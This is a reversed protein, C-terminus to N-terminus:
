ENNCIWEAIDKFVPGLMGGATVPIHRKNMSLVISYKPNDAPFYGCANMHYEEVDVQAIGVSIAVITKPTAARKGLGVESTTEVLARQISLINEPKAIQENIVETQGTRLTPKMMKGGNAIANYFALLQIPAVLREYGIAHYIIRSAVWNSDNPSSQLVPEFDSIGDMNEPQGFRMQDLQSFLTQEKDKYVNWIVKSIGVNSCFMLVEDMRIKRDYGGKRWNHDKMFRGDLLWVGNGVDVSDNMQVEGTELAALMMVPMMSSGVEQQVAYNECAAYTGNTERERGVMARIEGTGVEMVIAQGQLAEVEQMKQVLFSDVVEQLTLDITSGLEGAAGVKTSRDTCGLCLGLICIFILHYTKM